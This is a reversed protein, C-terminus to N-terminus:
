RSVIAAQWEQPGLVYATGSFEPIIIIGNELLQLAATGGRESPETAYGISQRLGPDSEWVRGFGRIPMYLGDPADGAPREPDGEEWTDQYQYYSGSSGGYTVIAYIRRDEDSLQVWVMLGNEFNQVSALREAMVAGPCGMEARFYDVERNSYASRFDDAVETTCSLEYRFNYVSDGLRGLLVSFPTGENEPHYEMRRREFYQVTGTWDGIQEDMPETIPYGFRELGGNNQWYSLFPECLSHRTPEFYRCGDPAGDVQAFDQWPTGRRELLEAGLRGALVGQGDTTHDELRDREFWQIPGSWDEITDVYVWSIPYGFVELGGNAEWYQRIQGSICYGTEPFCREDGQAAAPSAPQLLLGVTLLVLALVMGIRGSHTHTHLTHM